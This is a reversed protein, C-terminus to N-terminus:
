DAPSVMVSALTVFLEGEVHTLDFELMLQATGNIPVPVVRRTLGRAVAAVLWRQEHTLEPWVEILDQYPLRRGPLAVLCSGATASGRPAAGVM